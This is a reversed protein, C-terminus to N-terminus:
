RIVNVGLQVGIYPEPNLSKLGVGYGIGIGVSIPPNKPKRSIKDVELISRKDSSTLLLNPRKQRFLGQKQIITATLKAKYTLDITTSDAKAVINGTWNSDSVVLKYVIISDREYEINTKVKTQLKTKYTITEKLTTDHIYKTSYKTFKNVAREEGCQRFLFFLAVLIFAIYLYDRKM